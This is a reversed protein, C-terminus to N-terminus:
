APDEIPHLVGDILAAIFEFQSCSVQSMEVLVRSGLVRSVGLEVDKGGFEIELPETFAIEPM